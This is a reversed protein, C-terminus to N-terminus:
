RTVVGPLAFRGDPLPDVLGDAVLGDLARARQAAKPWVVDLDGAPVPAPSERLVAMLLGRVQRDTGAFAQPRRVPGANDPFGALLWRCQTALPCDSCRPTRAVCNLAGLEMLSISTRAAREPQLPLLSKARDLDLNTVNASSDAVGDFVRTLVRRVNTDIVPVRQRYAFAAIARATYTGVGPLALLADVDDPVEGGHLEVLTGACAHLRLARRPYGLRGWERIAEGAPEAALAAPAPWRRLWSEYVPLVRNVPTQQLMFESVLVAWPSADPARWPLDRANTDYWELLADIPLRDGEPASPTNM